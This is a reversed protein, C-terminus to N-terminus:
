LKTVRELPAAVLKGNHANVIYVANNILDVRDVTGKVIQGPPQSDREYIVKTGTTIM